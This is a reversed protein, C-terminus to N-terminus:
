ARAVPRRAAEKLRRLKRRVEHREKGTLSLLFEEWTAPLDLELSVDEQDCSFECGLSKALPIFGTFYPRTM